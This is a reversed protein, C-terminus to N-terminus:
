LHAAPTPWGAPVELAASSSILNPHSCYMDGVCQIPFLPITSCGPHVAAVLFPCPGEPQGHSSLSDHPFPVHSKM